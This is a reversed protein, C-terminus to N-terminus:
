REKLVPSPEGAGEGPALAPALGELARALTRSCALTRRALSLAEWLAWPERALALLASPARLLGRANIYASVFRPLRDDLADLVVRVSLFPLGLRHAELCAWYSELDVALAGTERGLARKEDPESALAPAVLGTGVWARVGQRSAVRLATDVLQPDCALTPLGEDCASLHSCVVLDGRRLSPQLAGSFGM